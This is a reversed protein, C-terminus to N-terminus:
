SHIVAYNKKKDTMLIEDFRIDKNPKEPDFHLEEIIVKTQDPHSYGLNPEEYEAEGAGLEPNLGGLRSHVWRLDKQDISDAHALRKLSTMVWKNNELDWMAAEEIEDIIVTNEVTDEVNDRIQQLYDKLQEIEDM